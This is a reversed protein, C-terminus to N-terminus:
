QHSTKLERSARVAYELFMQKIESDFWVPDTKIAEYEEYLSKLQSLMDDVNIEGNRIKLLEVRNPRPFTITNTNILEIAQQYTRFAHCFSKMEVVDGRQVSQVRSGFSKFVNRLSEMVFRLPTTEMFQRGSLEMSDVLRSSKSTIPVKSFTVNEFKANMVHDIIRVGDVITDLRLEADFKSLFDIVDGIANRRESRLVYDMTSKKAFGVMSGTKLCGPTNTVTTCLQFFEADVSEFRGQVIGFLIEISKVEGAVVRTVFDNLAVYEVEVCDAGMVANPNAESGDPYYKEKYSNSEGYFMSEFTPLHIVVYDTDSEPRETGYLRSGFKLVALSHVKDFEM